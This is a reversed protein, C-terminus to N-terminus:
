EEKFSSYSRDILPKILYNLFTREGTKILVDAPMGPRVQLDQLYQRGKKTVSVHIKYYSNNTKEDLLKDPSVMTVIAPIHPTRNQNFASFIIDVELNTKVKDILHVPVQAEIVLEDNKPIIDMLHTGPTISGGKTFISLGNVYGEVPSKILTNEFEYRYTNLKEQSENLQKKFKEVNGLDDAISARLQAGEREKDLLTTRAIFGEKSLQRLSDVQESVLSLQIRKQQLVAELAKQQEEIAMMSEKTSNVTSKTQTPNIQVLPQGKVVLQGETVFIDDVVGGTLYKIDKKNSAAIVTGTAPVGQDIPATGLWLFFVGFAGLLIFGVARIHGSPDVEVNLGDAVAIGPENARTMEQWRRLIVQQASVFLPNVRQKLPEIKQLFEQWHPQCQQAVDTVRSWSRTLTSITKELM